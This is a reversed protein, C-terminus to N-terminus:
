YNQKLDNAIFFTHYLIKSLINILWSYIILM